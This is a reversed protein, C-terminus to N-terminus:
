PATLPRMRVARFVSQCPVTPTRVGRPARSRCHPTAHQTEGRPVQIRGVFSSSASARANPHSACACRKPVPGRREM